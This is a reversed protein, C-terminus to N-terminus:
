RGRRRFLGAGALALVGFLGYGAADCGGGSGGGTLNQPRSLALPDNAYGDRKGDYVFLYKGGGAPEVVKVGYNRNGNAPYAVGTENGPTGDIIVLSANLAAANNSFDFDVLGLDKLDIYSGNEFYKLVTYNAASFSPLDGAALSTENFPLSIKGVLIADGRSNVEENVAIASSIRAFNRQPIPTGNKNSILETNQIVGSGKMAEVTVPTDLAALAVNNAAAVAAPDPFVIEAAKPWNLFHDWEYETYTQNQDPTRVRVDVLWVNKLDAPIDFNFRGNALPLSGNHVEGDIYGTGNWGLYSIEM